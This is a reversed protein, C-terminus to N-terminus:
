PKALVGETVPHESLYQPTLFQFRHVMRNLTDVVWIGGAPDYDVGRPLYFGGPSIGVKVPSKSGIRLLFDGEPSFIVLKHAMADTVYVQGAASVALNKPIEFSGDATGREGFMRLFAGTEDFVQVRANLTDLVYVHGNEDVDVDTPFNFQGPQDGRSGLHGTLRGQLDFLALRHEITDLVYIVERPIDVAVAIPRKLGPDSLSFLYNEQEDFVVVNKALTDCVYLRGAADVTVCFPFTFGGVQEGRQPPALLRAKNEALDLVIVQRSGSDAVYVRGKGDSTVDVPSNFLAQLRDDGLVYRQMFSKSKPKLDYDSFYSKLYEIKPEAPSPPFFFRREEPLEVTVTSCAPLLQLTLLLALLLLRREFLPFKM